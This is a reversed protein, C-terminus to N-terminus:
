IRPSSSAGVSAPLEVVSSRLREEGIRLEVTAGSTLEVEHEFPGLWSEGVLVYRGPAGIPVDVWCTPWLEIAVHAEPGVRVAAALGQRRAVVYLWTMATTWNMLVFEGRADTVAQYPESLAEIRQRAEPPDDCAYSLEWAVVAGEVPAGTTGDLVVGRLRPPPDSRRPREPPPEEVERARADQSM